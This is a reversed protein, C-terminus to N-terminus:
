EDNDGPEIVVKSWVLALNMLYLISLHSKEWRSLSSGHAIRNRHHNLDFLIDIPTPKNAPNNKDYFILDENKAIHILEQFSTRPDEDEVLKGLQEKLFEHTTTVFDVPHSLSHYESIWKHFSHKGNTTSLNKVSYSVIEILADEVLKIEQQRNLNLSKPLSEIVKPETTAEQIERLSDLKRDQEVAYEKLSELAIHVQELEENIKGLADSREIIEDEFDEEDNNPPQIGPPRQTKPKRIDFSDADKQFEELLAEYTPPDKPYVWAKRSGDWQRGVIKKARYRDSPHIRVLFHTEDESVEIPGSKTDFPMSM